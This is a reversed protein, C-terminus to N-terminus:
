RQGMMCPAWGGPARQWGPAGSRPARTRATDRARCSPAHSPPPGPPHRPSPHYERIPRRWASRACARCASCTAPAALPARTCGASRRSPDDCPRGTGTCPCRGHM